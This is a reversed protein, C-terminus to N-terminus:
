SDGRSLCGRVLAKSVFSPASDLVSIVSLFRAPYNRPLGLICLYCIFSLSFLSSLTSNSTLLQASPLGRAWVAGEALLYGRPGKM